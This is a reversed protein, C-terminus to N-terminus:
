RATGGPTHSAPSERMARVALDRRFPPTRLVLAGGRSDLRREEVKRGAETDWFEVCFTGPGVGAIEVEVPPVPRLHASEVWLPTAQKDYLYVRTAGPAALALSGIDLLRPHDGRLRVQHFNWEHQRPGEADMFRRLAAFERDLEHKEIFDFWWFLPAGGLTTFASAWLGAHLDAKLRPVSGGYWNGGFETVLVPKGYQALVAATQDVLEILDESEHYADAGIYDVEPLSALLRDVSQFDTSFHVGVLVHPAISKVYGAMKGYWEAKQRRAAPDSDGALNIENWLTLGLLNPSQGWRALVYRVKQKWLGFARPDTFLEQPKQLFGGNRRSYPHDPWEADVAESAQGHNDVVLNVYVGHREALAMVRDLRAANCLNYRGAGRYHPWRGSWEVALWWSAMWVETFNQGTEAMRAFRTGYGETGRRTPSQVGILWSGRPDDLSHLNQGIPHFRGGGAHELFRPDRRAVRVPGPRKSPAAVFPIAPTCASAGGAAIRVVIQHEGIATPAYRVAWRPFGFPVLGGLRAPAEAYDQTYFGPVRVTGAGPARVDAAVEVESPDFPNQFTRNVRFSVEVMEYRQPARPSVALDFIRLPEEAKEGGEVRAARVAVKCPAEREAFLVVGVERIDALASGDWGGFHGRPEFEGPRALEGTLQEVAGPRLGQPHLREYWFGDRDKLYLAPRVQAETAGLPELEVLIRRAHGLGDPVSTGIIAPRELRCSIELRRAPPSSPGIAGNVAFWSAPAALLDRATSRGEPQKAAGSQAQAASGWSALCALVMIPLPLMGTM